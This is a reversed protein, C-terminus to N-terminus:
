GPSVIAVLIVALGLVVFLSLVWQCLGALAPRAVAGFAVAIGAVISLVRAASGNSIVLWASIFMLAAVIDLVVLDVVLRIKAASSGRGDALGSGTNVLLYAEGGLAAVGILIELVILATRTM